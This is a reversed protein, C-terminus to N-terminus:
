DLIQVKVGGQTPDGAVTFAAVADALAFRHSVLPRVDILRAGVLRLARPYQHKYRFLFRLDIERFSVDAFPYRQTKPGM